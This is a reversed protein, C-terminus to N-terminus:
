LLEVGIYLKLKFYGEKGCKPCCYNCIIVENTKPYYLYNNKLDIIQSTNCGSCLVEKMLNVNFRKSLEITEKIIKM